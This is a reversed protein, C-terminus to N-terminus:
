RGIKAVTRVVKMVWEMALEVGGGGENESFLGLRWALHDLGLNGSPLIQDRGKRINRWTPPRPTCELSLFPDFKATYRLLAM